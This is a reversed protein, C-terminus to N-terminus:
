ATECSFKQRDIFIHLGEESLWSICHQLQHYENASIHGTHITWSSPLVIDWVPQLSLKGDKIHWLRRIGGDSVDKAAKDLHMLGVRDKQENKPHKTDLKASNEGRM